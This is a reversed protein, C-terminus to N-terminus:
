CRPWWGAPHKRMLDTVVSGVRLKEAQAGVVGMMVLPDFYVHAVEPVNALPTVDPQWISDPHWGMLHDPWWM